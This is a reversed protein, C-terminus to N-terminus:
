CCIIKLMFDDGKLMVDDSYKDNEPLFALSNGNFSLLFKM